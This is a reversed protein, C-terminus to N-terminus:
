ACERRVLGAVVAAASAVEASIARAARARLLTEIAACRHAVEPLPLHATSHGGM